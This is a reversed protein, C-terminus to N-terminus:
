PELSNNEVMRGMRSPTATAMLCHSTLRLWSHPPQPEGPPEAHPEAKPESEPEPQPEPEEEDMAPGAAAAPAPKSAASAAPAAPAAEPRAVRVMRDADRWEELRKVTSGLAVKAAADDEARIADALRVALVAPSAHVPTNPRAIHWGDALKQLVFTVSETRARETLVNDIDLVGLTRYAVTVNATTGKVQSGTIRCDRTVTIGGGPPAATFLELSHIQDAGSAHKSLRAGGLDLMCYKFAVAEPPEAKPKPPQRHPRPKGLAPCLLFATLAVALLMRRSSKVM